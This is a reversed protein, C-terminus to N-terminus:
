AASREGFPRFPEGGGEYFEWYLYDHQKQQDPHGLISPLFSVGDTKPPSTVGALDGILNDEHVVAGDDLRARGVLHQAVGALVPRLREQRREELSGQELRPHEPRRQGLKAAGSPM